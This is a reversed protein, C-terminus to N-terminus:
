PDDSFAQKPGGLSNVAKAALKPSYSLHDIIMTMPEFYGVSKAHDQELEALAVDGQGSVIHHLLKLGYRQYSVFSQPDSRLKYTNRVIEQDWLMVTEPLLFHLAKGLTTPPAGNARLGSSLLLIDDFDGTTLEYLVKGHLRELTDLNTGLWAAYIRRFKAGGGKFRM